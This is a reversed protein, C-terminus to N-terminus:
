VFTSPSTSASLCTGCTLSFLSPSRVAKLYLPLHATHWNQNWASDNGMARKGKRKEKEKRNKQQSNKFFIGFQNL